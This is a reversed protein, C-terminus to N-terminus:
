AVAIIQGSTVLRRARALSPDFVEVEYPSGPYALYISKAFQPSVVALGGGALKLLVAGKAKSLRRIAALPNKVPYTAVTLYPTQVGIAAEPPLYRVLYGGQATTTLEYTQNPLAGAWYIPRQAKTAVKTLSKESVLVPRSERPSGPVRAVAGSSVLSRARGPSPDFVEIQFRSGPYAIWANLPRAKTSFAIASTSVKLRVAGPQGAARQAAAYADAVIYTGVTLYPKDTGVEVGAPLYRLLVRGNGPLMREYTVNARPGVWYIPQQLSRALATLGAPTVAVASGGTTTTTTPTEDGCGAVAVAIAAAALGALLRPRVRRRGPRGRHAPQLTEDV